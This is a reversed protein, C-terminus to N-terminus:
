DIIHVSGEDLDPPHQRGSAPQDDEFVDAPIARHTPKLVQDCLRPRPQSGTAVRIASGDVGNSRGSEIGPSQAADSSGKHRGRTGRMQLSERSYDFAISSIRLDARLFNSSDSPTPRSGYLSATVGQQDGGDRQHPAPSRLSVGMSFAFCMPPMHARATASPTPIATALVGATANAAGASEPLPEDDPSEDADLEDPCESEVDDSVDDLFVADDAAFSAGLRCRRGSFGGPSVAILLEPPGCVLVIVPVDPDASVVAARAEDVEVSEVPRDPVRAADSM